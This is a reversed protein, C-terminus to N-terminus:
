QKVYWYGNQYGNSPYTSSYDSGVLGYSTNGKEYTYVSTSGYQDVTYGSTYLNKRKFVVSNRWSNRLAFYDVTKVKDYSYIDNNIYETSSCNYYGTTKDFIQSPTTNMFYFSNKRRMEVDKTIYMEYTKYQIAQYKEWYCSYKMEHEITSSKKENGANDYVMVYISYTVEPTLGTARYSSSSTKESNTILKTGEYVFFQYEKIGSKGYQETEDQDTANIDIQLQTSSSINDNINPICDNPPLKDICDINMEKEQIIEGNAKTMRAKIVTNNSVQIPETYELYNKGNNLSVERKYNSSNSGFEVEVTVDKNTWSDPHLNITIENYETTVKEVSSKRINGANDYALMYVIYEEGPELGTIEYSTETINPFELKNGGTKLQAVYTYDALGTQNDVTSGTVRLSDSTIDTVTVGFEEPKITDKIELKEAETANVGDTLRAYLVDNLNLDKVTSGKIWTGDVGNIQYEITDSTKTSIQVEAKGNSWKIDGFTITETKSQVEDGITVNFNEDITYKFKKEGADYIGELKTNGATYDEVGIKTNQDPLEDHLTQLTVEGEEPIRNMQIEMIALEIDEKAQAKMQEIKAQKARAILGNEGGLANITVGALILLIVITIVLAILTIAKQKQIKM